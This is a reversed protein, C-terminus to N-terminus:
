EKMKAIGDAVALHNLLGDQLMYELSEAPTMVPIWSPCAEQPKAKWALATPRSKPMSFTLPKRSAPRPQWPMSRAPRRRHRQPQAGSIALLSANRGAEAYIQGPPWIYPQAEASCIFYIQVSIYKLTGVGFDRGQYM